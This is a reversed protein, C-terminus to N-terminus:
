REDCASNEIRLVIKGFQGGREMLEFAAGAQDLPFTASVVPHITKAGVFATM